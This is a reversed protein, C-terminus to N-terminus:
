NRAIKNEVFSFFKAMKRYVDPSCQYIRRKILQLDSLSINETFWETRKSELMNRLKTCSINIFDM